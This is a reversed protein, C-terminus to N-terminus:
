RGRRGMRCVEAAVGEGPAYVGPRGKAEDGERRLFVRERRCLAVRERATAQGPFAKGRRSFAVTGPIFGAFDHCGAQLERGKGWELWVLTLWMSRAVPVTFHNEDSFPNPKM